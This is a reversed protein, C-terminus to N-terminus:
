HHSNDATKMLMQSSYGLLDTTTAKIKMPLLLITTAAYSSSYCNLTEAAEGNKANKTPRKKLIPQKIKSHMPKGAVETQGV